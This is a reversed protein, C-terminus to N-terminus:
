QTLNKPKRKASLLIKIDNVQLPDTIKIWLWRGDHLQPTETFIRRTEPSLEEIHSDVKQTDKSGLVILVKFSNLDPFLYCLTKGRRVYRISWGYKKTFFKLEPTFDYYTQLYDNLAQWHTQLQGILALIEEQTPPNNKDLFYEKMM